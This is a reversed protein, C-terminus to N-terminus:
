DFSPSNSVGFNNNKHYTGTSDVFGAIYKPSVSRGGSESTPQTFDEIAAAESVADLPSSYQERRDMPIAVIFRGISSNQYYGGVMAQETYNTDVATSNEDVLLFRQDLGYMGLGIGNEEKLYGSADEISFAASQNVGLVYKKSGLKEAQEAPLKGELLAASSRLMEEKVRDYRGQAKKREEIILRTNEDLSSLWEAYLAAEEPYNSMDEPRIGAIAYEAFLIPNDGFKSESNFDDSTPQEPSETTNEVWNGDEDLVMEPQEDYIFDLGDDDFVLEESPPENNPATSIFESM